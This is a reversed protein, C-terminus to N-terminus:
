NVHTQSCSDVWFIKASKCISNVDEAKYVHGVLNSFEHLTDHAKIESSTQPIMSYDMGFKM